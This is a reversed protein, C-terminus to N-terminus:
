VPMCQELYGEVEHVIFADVLDDFEMNCRHCNSLSFNSLDKATYEFDRDGMSITIHTEPEYHVEAEAMKEGNVEIELYSAEDISYAYRTPYIQINFTNMQADVFLLRCGRNRGSIANYHMSRGEFVKAIEGKLGRSTSKKLNPLGIKGKQGM